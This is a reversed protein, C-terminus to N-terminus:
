KQRVKNNYRIAEEIITMPSNNKNATYCLAETDKPFCSGGFGREETIKTHSRGIRPDAAAHFSVMDFDTGTADCLDKLQNFYAVKLALFCNKAYKTMILNEPTDFTVVKNSFVRQWFMKDPHRTGMYITKTNAVDHLYTAERLYEPSYALYHDPYTEELRRWEDVSITSKVCVHSNPPIKSLVDFVASANCSGDQNAPTSVCVLFCGFPQTYYEESYDPYKTDIITVDNKDKLLYDYAKGVYGHGVIAIKM